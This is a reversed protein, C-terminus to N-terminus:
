DAGLSTNQAGYSEREKFYLVAHQVVKSYIGDQLRSSIQMGLAADFDQVRVNTTIILAKEARYRADLLELIDIRERDSLPQLDDLSRLQTAKLLQIFDLAESPFSGRLFRLFETANIFKARIALREIERRAVALALRTKGCGSPGSLVLCRTHGDARYEQAARLMEANESTKVFGEFTADRWLRPGVDKELVRLYSIARGRFEEDRRRAEAQQACECQPEHVVFRRGSLMYARTVYAKGCAACERTQSAVDSTQAQPQPM